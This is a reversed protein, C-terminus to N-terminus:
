AVFRLALDRNSACFVEMTPQTRLAGVDDV